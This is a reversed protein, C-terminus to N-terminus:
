PHCDACCYTLDDLEERFIREYTNHHCHGRNGIYDGCIECYGETEEIKDRRLERWEESQLYEKYNREMLPDHVVKKKEFKVVVM